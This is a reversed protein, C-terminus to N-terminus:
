RDAFPRERSPHRIALIAIEDSKPQISYYVLYGFKRTVLKRVRDISQRRGIEPFQSLVQLSELISARVREAAGPNKVRIYEAIEILDQTAQPAFRLKM